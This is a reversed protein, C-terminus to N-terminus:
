KAQAVGLRRRATVVLAGVLLLMGTAPEPVSAASTVVIGPTPSGAFVQALANASPGAWVGGNVVLDNAFWTIQFGAAQASTQAIVFWYQTGSSLLPNLVSTLTTLAPAPFGSGGPVAFSWSELLSGPEGASNAYLGATVPSTVGKLAIGITALNGGGTSTFTTGFFANGTNYANPSDAPFGAGVNTYITGASLQVPIWCFTLTILLRKLM